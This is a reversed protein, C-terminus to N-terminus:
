AAGHRNETVAVDGCLVRVKGEKLFAISVTVCLSASANSLYPRTVQVEGIAELARHFYPRRSWRTGPPPFLPRFRPDDWGEGKHSWLYRDIQQGKDDLLFCFDAGKLELFAACAEEISKDQAILRAAHAIASVYEGMDDPRRSGPNLWQQDYAAWVDKIPGYDLGIPPLEQQPRGFYYGQVFDIDAELSLYAEEATEVGEILVMAGAEHLLAVMQPLLRRMKRDRAALVLLTRDLKVIEPQIRWVRDFNSHGAGFDDLAILCGLERFYRVAHDFRQNDIVEQEMVEVVIRHAPMGHEALQRRLFSEGGREPAHTFVDPHMNLFLWGKGPDQRLYNELHLSRCQRDLQRLTDPDDVARLVDYPTVTRGDAHQARMLAEHGVCTRLSLSLIPQFCSSLSVPGHSSPWTVSVPGPPTPKDASTM